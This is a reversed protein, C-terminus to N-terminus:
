AIEPLVVVTEHHKVVGPAGTGTFEILYRTAQGGVATLAGMDDAAWIVSLGSATATLGTTKTWEALASPDGELRASCTWTYGTGDTIPLGTDDVLTARYGPVTAGEIRSRM